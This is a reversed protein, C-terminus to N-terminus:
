LGGATLVAGALLAAPQGRARMGAAAPDQGLLACELRRSLYRYASVQLWTTPRRPVAGRGRSDTACVSPRRAAGGFRNDM